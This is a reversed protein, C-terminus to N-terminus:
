INFVQMLTGALILLTGCATNASATLLAKAVDAQTLMKYKEKPSTQEVALADYHKIAAALSTSLKASNATNSDDRGQLMRLLELLSRTLEVERVYKTPRAKEQEIFERLFRASAAPLFAAALIQITGAILFLSQAWSVAPPYSQTKGWAVLGCGIVIAAILFIQAGWRRFKSWSERSGAHEGLEESETDHNKM